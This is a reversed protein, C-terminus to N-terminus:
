DRPTTDPRWAPQAGVLHTTRADHEPICVFDAGTDYLRYGAEGLLNGLVQRGSKVHEIHILPKHRLLTERAGALVDAEMGEVDIKMVDVRTLEMADISNMEIEDFVGDVAQQWADSQTERNLEVSGFGGFERYNLRPLRATGASAGIALMHCRVNDLSNLAINGALMHFMAPQAEFAHVTGGPGAARAMVVSAVGINAGVDLVVPDPPSALVLQRLIEMQEPDCAGFNSLQHGVGTDYRNIIFLGQNSKVVAAYGDQDGPHIVRLLPHEALDLFEPVAAKVFGRPPDPSDYLRGLLKKLM